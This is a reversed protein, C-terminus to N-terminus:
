KSLNTLTTINPLPGNFQVGVSNLNTLKTLTGIETPFTGHFLSKGLQLDILTDSWSSIVHSPISGTLQTGDLTLYQLKTWVTGFREFFPGSITTDKANFQQLQQLSQYELPISGTFYNFGILINELGTLRGISSPLPGVFENNNLYL